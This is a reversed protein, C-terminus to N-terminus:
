TVEPRTIVVEKCATLARQWLPSGAQLTSRNGIVILGLKPRTWAVNLRRADEVFGIDGEVNSRVTTFVVIDAERGQFGDITSVVANMWSPLVQKVLQVHRSYPTLVAITVSQVRATAEADDKNRAVRLLSLIYKTLEAQGENSKSSRGFDEESACPVFVVPFIRGNNSPWPFTLASLTASIEAVGSTGTRLRGEYFEQSPFHALEEPFRYQVDLMVRSMEPYAPGTWLREFLSKDFELAKGMPRVTPRLQVHDGVLVAKRCGKVLPILACPETIQSAEDILVTDFDINRLVGLGAGSCTTFVIRAGRVREEAKKLLKPNDTMSGGIRSDITYSQLSKNVKFSDTAVRLIQDSQLLRSGENERIFRELVNDVSPKGPPGWILALQASRASKVAERQSDNLSSSMDSGSENSPTPAQAIVDSRESGDGVIVRSFMCCEPGDLALRQVANMMARSTAVSGANYLLWDVRQYEPPLPHQMELYLEGRMSRLVTADVVINSAIIGNAPGDLPSAVRLRVHSHIRIPTDADVRIDAKVHTVPGTSAEPTHQEESKESQTRTPSTLRARVPAVRQRKPRGHEDCPCADAAEEARDIAIGLAFKHGYEMSKELSGLHARSEHLVLLSEQMLQSSRISLAVAWLINVYTGFDLCAADFSLRELAALAAIGLDNASRIICLIISPALSAVADPLKAPEGPQFRKLISYALSPYRRMCDSIEEHPIGERSCLEEFILFIREEVRHEVAIQLYHCLGSISIDTLLHAAERRPAAFLEQGVTDDRWDINHAANLVFPHPTIDFRRLYEETPVQEFRLDFAQSAVRDRNSVVHIEIAVVPTRNVRGFQRQVRGSIKQLAISIVIDSGSKIPPRTVFIFTNARAKDYLQLVSEGCHLKYGKTGRWYTATVESTNPMFPCVLVNDNIDPEEDWAIDGRLFVGISFRDGTKLIMLRRKYQQVAERLYEFFAARGQVSSSYLKQLRLPGGLNRTDLDRPRLIESRILSNWIYPDKEPTLGLRMSLAHKEATGLSGFDIHCLHPRLDINNKRAFETALMVVEYESMATKESSLFQALIDEATDKPLSDVQLTESQTQMFMDFFQRAAAQLLEVIYPTGLDPPSLLREPIKVSAGDVAHSHLANLDQCEDSMAGKPSCRVWKAHLAAIKGLTMTNYSAFHRALNERTVSNSVHERPAPYTYSEAVNRPVLDSDWMVLFKDGDLDGGSSMSPAARRGKSSFVLCDVLHSLRPHDVAWLKLCDGPHLCPNRVVLVETNTLTSAGRRPVSVRVHVEGERLVGYPDCIGFLLRSKLVIMRSRFKENKKFAALESMQCARIKKQVEPTDIGELILREAMDFNGLACLFNFAVEWDTSAAMIWRHYSEQRALLTEQTVGLSALLVIVDNNLRGFSYPTSHDVMSFTNDRTATFKKQSARFHVLHEQNLEPHLMLVGKYGRYRIQFVCPTYPRGHYVFRKHRSLQVALRKSILGCGDSFTEGNSVIDEIDKTWKPDLDWDLEAKSFLLGIRKARKAVNMIRKLDGFQYIRDDLEEDTRAERLFCSRSRLQSNSHGYFRYQVGNLHFGSKFLRVMYERTSSAPTDPFRLSEFSALILKSPDDANLMRNSPFMVIDLTIAQATFSVHKGFGQRRINPIAATFNWSDDEPTPNDRLVVRNM